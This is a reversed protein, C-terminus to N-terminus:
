SGGSYVHLVPQDRNLTHPHYGRKDCVACWAKADNSVGEAMSRPCGPWGGLVLQDHPNTSDAGARRLVFAARQGDKSTCQQEIVRWRRARWFSRYQRWPCRSSHRARESRFPPAPVAGLSEICGCQHPRVSAHGACSLSADSGLRSPATHTERHGFGGGKIAIHPM